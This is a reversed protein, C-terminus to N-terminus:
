WYEIQIGFNSGHLAPGFVGSSSLATGAAFADATQQAARNWRAYTYYVRIEPRQWFGTGRPSWSPAFTFKTLHAQRGASPKVQDHGAELALKFREGIGYVPRVGLSRWEQPTGNSFRDRQWVLAVQGGIQGRQWELADIVRWRSDFNALDDRLYFEFWQECENGLRYKAQAGPLRFCQQTGNGEAGGIGTRFYSRFEAAQASLPIL